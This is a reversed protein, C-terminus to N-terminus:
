DASSQLKMGKDIQYVPCIGYTYYQHATKHPVASM